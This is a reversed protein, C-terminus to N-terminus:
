VEFEDKVVEAAKKAVSNLSISDLNFEKPNECVTRYAHLLMSITAGFNTRPSDTEVSHTRIFWEYDEVLIEVQKRVKLPNRDIM